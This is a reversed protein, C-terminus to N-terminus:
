EHRTGRKQYRYDASFDRPIPYDEESRDFLYAHELVEVFDFGTKAEVPRTYGPDLRKYVATSFHLPSHATSFHLVRSLSEHNQPM